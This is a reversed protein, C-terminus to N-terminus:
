PGPGGTERPNGPIGPSKRPNGPIGRSQRASERIGRSSGPAALRERASGSAEWGAEIAGELRGVLASLDSWPAGSPRLVAWSAGLVSWSLGLLGELVAGLLLIWQNGKYIHMYIYM